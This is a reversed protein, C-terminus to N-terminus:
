KTVRDNETLELCRELEQLGHLLRTRANDDLSQILERHRQDVIRQYRDLLAEGQPTVVVHIRRRSGPDPRREVLDRAVLGDLMSSMTPVTVRTLEALSSTTAPSDGPNAITQLCRFQAITLRDDGESESIADRLARQYRPLVRDLLKILESEADILQREAM